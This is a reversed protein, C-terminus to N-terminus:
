QRLRSRSSAVRALLTFVLVLLLLELAGAWAREQGAPFPNRAGYYILVPLSATAEGVLRTVIEQASLATLLLPATEGAARAVALMIGTTLGPAAAPLVVRSITHWRGAGLAYSAEKLERPVLKLMEESSRVVIPLMIIALSAAGMVVGFGFPIVLATYVFLGVFVSPVGTMVDSFFRIVQALLGKKGYEVLYVAGLLGLPISIAAALLVMLLTGILGNVFGGGRLRMSYPTPQTLFEWNMTPLGKVTVYYLILLVPVLVILAALWMAVRAAADKVVRVRSTSRILLPNGAAIGVPAGAAPGTPAGEPTGLPLSM